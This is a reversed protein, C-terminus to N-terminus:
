HKHETSPAEGVKRKLLRKALIQDEEWGAQAIEKATVGEVDISVIELQNAIPYIFGKITANKHGLLKHARIVDHGVANDVINWITGDASRFGIAHQAFLNCQANAGDLKKLTCGTCIIEGKLTMENLGKQEDWGGATVATVSLFLVAATTFLKKLM